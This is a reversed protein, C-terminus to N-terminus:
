ICVSGIFIADVMSASRVVVGSCDAMSTDNVVAFIATLMDFMTMITIIIYKELSRDHRYSCSLGEIIPNVHIITVTASLVHSIQAYIITVTAILMHRIHIHYIHSVYICRGYSNKRTPDMSKISAYNVYRRRRKVIFCFTNAM